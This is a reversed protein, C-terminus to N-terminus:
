PFLTSKIEEITKDNLFEGPWIRPVNFDLVFIKKKEIKRAKFFSNKYGIPLHPKPIEELCSSFKLTISRHFMGPAAMRSFQFSQFKLTIQHM